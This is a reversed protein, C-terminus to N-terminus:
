HLPLAKPDMWLIEWERGDSERVPLEASFTAPM